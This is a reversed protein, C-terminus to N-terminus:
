AFKGGRRLRVLVDRRAEVPWSAMLALLAEFESASLAGKAQNCPRCLIRVNHLDFSGGRSTADQHDCNFNEPSLRSGCYPCPHEIAQAVLQRLAEVDYPLPVGMLRARRRHSQHADYTRRNFTKNSM